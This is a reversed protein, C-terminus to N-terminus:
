GEKNIRLFGKEKPDELLGGEGNKRGVERKGRKSARM